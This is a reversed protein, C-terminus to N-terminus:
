TLLKTKSEIMKMISKKNCLFKDVKLMLKGLSDKLDKFFLEREVTWDISKDEDELGWRDRTGDSHAYYDQDGLKCKFMIRYHIGLSYDNHADSSYGDSFTHTKRGAKVEGSMPFKYVIIKKKKAKKGSYEKLIAKFNDIVDSESDGAVDDVCMAVSVETPLKILFKTLKVSYRITRMFPKDNFYIKEKSITAM